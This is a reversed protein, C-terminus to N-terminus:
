IKSINQFAIYTASVCINIHDHPEDRFCRVAQAQKQPRSSLLIASAEQCFQFLCVMHMAGPLSNTLEPYCRIPMKIVKLALIYLCSIPKWLRPFELLAQPLNNVCRHRVYTSASSFSFCFSYIAQMFHTKGNAQTHSSHDSGGICHCGKDASKKLLTSFM